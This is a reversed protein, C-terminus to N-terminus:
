RRSGRYVPNGSWEPDGEWPVHQGEEDPLYSGPEPTYPKDKVPYGEEEKAFQGTRKRDGEHRAADEAASNVANKVKAKTQDWNRDCKFKWDWPQKEATELMKMIKPKLKKLEAEMKKAHMQEHGFVGEPTSPKKQYDPTGVNEPNMTIAIQIVAKAKYVRWKDENKPCECAGEVTCGHRTQGPEPKAIGSEKYWGYLVEVTVEALGDPDLYCCPCGGVYEYLAMGDEYGVRDRQVFRGLTPHYMASAATAACLVLLAAFPMFVLSTRKM